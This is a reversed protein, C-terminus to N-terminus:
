PKKKGSIAYISLLLTTPTIEFIRPYRFRSSSWPVITLNSHKPGGWEGWGYLLLGITWIRKDAKHSNGLLRRKATPHTSAAGPHKTSVRTTQPPYGWSRGLCGTHNECTMIPKKTLHLANHKRDWNWASAFALASVCIRRLPFCKRARSDQKLITAGPGLPCPTADGLLLDRIQTEALLASPRCSELVHMCCGGLALYRMARTAIACQKPRLVAPRLLAGQSARVGSRSTLLKV